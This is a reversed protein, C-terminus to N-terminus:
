ERQDAVVPQDLGVVPDAVHGPAFVLLVGVGTGCGVGHGYQSVEGQGDEPEGAVPLYDAGQLAEGGVAVSDQGQERGEWWRRM